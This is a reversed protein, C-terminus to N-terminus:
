IPTENHTITEIVQKARATSTHYKHFWANGNARIRDVESEHEMYYKLKEVMEDPNEFFVANEGDTYDYPIRIKLKESFLMVGFAPLEWYRSTDYGYGRLSLGIKHKLMSEAYEFREMRENFKKGCMSELRSLYPTRITMRPYDRGVWFLTNTRQTEINAPIYKESYSFNIPIVKQGFDENKMYERKFYLKANLDSWLERNIGPQDGHDIIYVPTGNNNEKFIRLTEYFEKTLQDSIAIETKPRCGFIVVDFEGNRLMALKEPDSKLVPYRFADPYMALRHRTKGHLFDKQPYELVNKNGLVRCLGDFLIDMGFDKFSTACFLIKMKRNGM